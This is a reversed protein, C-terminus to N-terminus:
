DWLGLSTLGQLDIETSCEPCPGHVSEGRSEGHGEYGATGQWPVLKGGCDPCVAADPPDPRSQITRCSECVRQVLEFSEGTDFHIGVGTHIEHETSCGSCTITFVSGPM